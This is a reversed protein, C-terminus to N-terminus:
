EDARGPDWSVPWMGSKKMWGNQLSHVFDSTRAIKGGCKRVVILLDTLPEKQKDAAWGAQQGLIVSFGSTVTAM